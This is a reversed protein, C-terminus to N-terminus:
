ELQKISQKYITYKSINTTVSSFFILLYLPIYLFWKRKTDAQLKLLHFSRYWDVTLAIFCSSCFVSFFGKCYNIWDEMPPLLATKKANLITKKCM